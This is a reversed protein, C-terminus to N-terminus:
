YDGERPQLCTIGLKRWMKVCQIRDEVAFMVRRHPKNCRLHETYIDMKVQVDSRNDDSVRMYMKTYPIWHRVLWHTTMLRAWEPRATILIIDLGQNHTMRLLDAEDEFLLDEEAALVYANFLAVHEISGRQMEGSSLPELIHKRHAGNALVGDIDFIAIPHNKM